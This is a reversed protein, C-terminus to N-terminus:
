HAQRTMSKGQATCLTSLHHGLSYIVESLSSMRLQSFDMVRLGVVTHTLQTTTYEGGGEQEGGKRGGKWRGAQRNKKKRGENERGGEERGGKREERRGGKREERRGGERGERGEERGERGAPNCLGQIYRVVMRKTDHDLRIFATLGSGGEGRWGKWGKWEEKKEGWICTLQHVTLPGGCVLLALAKVGPHEDGDSVVELLVVEAVKIAEQIGEVVLVLNGRREREDEM